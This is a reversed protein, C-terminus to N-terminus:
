NIDALQIKCGGDIRIHRLCIYLLCLRRCAIAVEDKRDDVNMAVPAGRVVTRIECGGLRVECPERQADCRGRLDGRLGAEWRATSTLAM